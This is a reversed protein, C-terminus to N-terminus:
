STTHIERELRKIRIEHDEHLEGAFRVLEQTVHQISKDVQDFRQNMAAELKDMRQNVKDFQPKTEEQIAARIAALDERTLTMYPYYVLNPSRNKVMNSLCM